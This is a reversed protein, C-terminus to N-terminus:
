KLLQLEGQIVRRRRRKLNDRRRDQGVFEGGQLGGGRVGSGKEEGDMRRREGWVGEGDGGMRRREGWVGAGGGDM